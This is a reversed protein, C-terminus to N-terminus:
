LSAVLNKFLAIVHPIAKKSAALVTDLDVAEPEEESCEQAIVSIGAVPLGLHNAVVVEPVTSMGVANGGISRLFRFEAPTQLQPGVMCVYVGKHLEIGQTEAIKMMKKNMEGDYAQNLTVFSKGFAAMEKFALPSRIQLNIHDTILMIEGKRYCPNLAGAANSVLLKEIGLEYMVRIPYTIEILDHGECLHFRGQMVIVRKGQFDGYILKGPHFDFTSLPFFPIKRYDEVTPNAILNAVESLGSGLVIGIEPNEFGRQKLYPISEALQRRMVNVTRIEKLTSAFTRTLVGM